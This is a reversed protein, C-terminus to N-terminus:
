ESDRGDKRYLPSSGDMLAKEEDSMRYGIRCLFDYILNLRKNEMFEGNYNACGLKENDSWMLYTHRLLSRFPTKEIQPYISEIGKKDPLQEPFKSNDYLGGSWGLHDIGSWDRRINYEIVFVSFKRADSEQIHEVFDRRLEYATKTIESLAERRLREKDQKREDSLRKEDDSANKKRKFYVANGNFSFYEQDNDIIYEDPSVSSCLAYSRASHRYNDNTSSERYSIEHLGRELLSIRWTKRRNEEEQEKLARKYSYDFNYTGLDELVRNRAEIDDIKGLRELDEISIQRHSAKMLKDPDLECLKLRRRITSASFGTKQSIQNTDMGLDLKMQKFGQAQEYITLDLRQLNETMMTAIQTAYDMDAVVCPIDKVGAAKAAALRRHGIIVTYSNEFAHKTAHDVYATSYKIGDDSGDILRDYSKTDNINPVVTLNQLIGNALMSQSLETVDGIDKRPNDPHPYIKEVPVYVIRRRSDEENDFEETLMDIEDDTFYNEISM